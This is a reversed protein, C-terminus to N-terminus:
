SYPRHNLSLILLGAAVPDAYDLGDRLLKKVGLSLRETDEIPERNGRAALELLLEKMSACAIEAQEFSDHSEEKLIRKAKIFQAQLYARRNGTALYCELRNAISGIDDRRWLKEENEVCQENLEHPMNLKLQSLPISTLQCTHIACFCELPLQHDRHWWSYHFKRYEDQACRACFRVHSWTTGVSLRLLSSVKSVCQDLEHSRFPEPITTAYYLAASHSSYLPAYSSLRTAGYAELRAAVLPFDRLGALNYQISSGLLDSLCIDNVRCTRLALSFAAEGEEISFV